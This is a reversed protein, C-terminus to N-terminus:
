SEGTRMVKLFVNVNSGKIATRCDSIVKAKSKGVRLRGAKQIIQNVQKLTDMLEQHNNCRIKYGVILDRNLDYLQSYWKRMNKMDMMLRSDEARVIFTRILGSNDAMEASLRQRVTQLGDAKSLLTETSDFEDPFDCTSKM